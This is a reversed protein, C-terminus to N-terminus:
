LSVFFNSCLAFNPFKLVLLHFKKEGCLKEAQQITLAVIFDVDMGSFRQKLARYFKNPVNLLLVQYRM